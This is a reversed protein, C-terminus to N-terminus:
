VIEALISSNRGVTLACMNRTKNYLLTVGGRGNRVAYRGINPRRVAHQWKKAERVAYRKVVFVVM